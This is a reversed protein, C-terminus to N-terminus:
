IQIACTVGFSLVNDPSHPSLLNAMLNAMVGVQGPLPVPVCERKRILDRFEEIIKVRWWKRRRDKEPAAADHRRSVSSKLNTQCLYSSQDPLPGTYRPTVSYLRAAPEVRATGHSQGNRRSPRVFTCARTRTKTNASS